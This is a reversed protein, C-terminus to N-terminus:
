QKIVKVVLLAGYVSVAGLGIKQIMTLNNMDLAAAWAILLVLLVTEMTSIRKM